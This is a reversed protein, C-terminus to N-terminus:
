AKRKRWEELAADALSAAMSSNGFQLAAAMFQAWVAAKEQSQFKM